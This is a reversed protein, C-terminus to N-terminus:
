HCKTCSKGKKVKKKKHCDWCFLNHADNSTKGKKLAGALNLEGGKKLNKLGSGDASVHCETCDNSKQHLAHPFIVAKKKTKGGDVWKEGLNIEAPGNNAAFAVASFILVALLVAIKKM